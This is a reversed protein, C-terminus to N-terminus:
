DGASIALHLGVATHRYLCLYLCCNSVRMYISHVTLSVTDTCREVLHTALAGIFVAFEEPDDPAAGMGFGLYYRNEPRVFCYPVNDLVLLFRKTKAGHLWGDITVDVRTWNYVLVGDSSRTVIEFDLNPTYTDTEPDHDAIGGLLRPASFGDTWPRTTIAGAAPRWAPLTAKLWPDDSRLFCGEGKVADEACGLGAKDPDPTTGFFSTNFPFRSPQFDQDTVTFAPAVAAQSPTWQAANSIAATAM